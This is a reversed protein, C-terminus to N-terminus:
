KIFRINYAHMKDFDSELKKFVVEKNIISDFLIDIKPIFKKLSSTGSLADITGSANGNIAPDPVSVVRRDRFDSYAVWFM